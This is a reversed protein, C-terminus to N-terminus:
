LAQLHFGSSFLMWFLFQRHETHGFHIKWHETSWLPCKLSIKCSFRDDYVLFLFFTTFECFSLVLFLALPSQRAYIQAQTCQQTVACAHVPLWYICVCLNLKLFNWLECTKHPCIEFQAESLQVTWSDQPSLDQITPSFSDNTFILPITGFARNLNRWGCSSLLVSQLALYTCSGVSVNSGRRATIIPVAISSRRRQRQKFEGAEEEVIKEPIVESRPSFDVRPM